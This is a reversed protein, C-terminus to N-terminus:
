DFVKEQIIQTVKEYELILKKLSPIIIMNLFLLINKKTRKKAKQEKIFKSISQICYLFFAGLVGSLLNNWDLNNYILNSVIYYHNRM